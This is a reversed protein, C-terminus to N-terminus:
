PITKDTLIEATGKTVESVVRDKVLEWIREEETKPPTMQHYTINGNADITDKSHRIEVDYGSANPDKVLVDEARDFHGLYKGDADFYPIAKEGLIKKIM